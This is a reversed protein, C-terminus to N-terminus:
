CCDDNEIELSSSSPGFFHEIRTRAGGPPADEPKHYFYHLMSLKFFLSLIFSSYSNFSFRYPILLNVYFYILFIFILKNIWNKLFKSISSKLRTYFRKKHM